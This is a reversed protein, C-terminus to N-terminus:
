KRNLEEITPYNLFAFYLKWEKGEKKFEFDGVRVWNEIPVNYQSDNKNYVDLKKILDFETENDIGLGTDQKLYKQIVRVFDKKDYKVIPDSDLTGRTELPFKTSQILKNTDNEIVANRFGVWFEQFSKNIRNKTTDITANSNNKNKSTTDKIIKIESPKDTNRDNCSLIILTLSFILVFHHKM